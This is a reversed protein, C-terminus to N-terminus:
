QQHILRKARKVFLRAEDQLVFNKANPMFRAFIRAYQDYVGGPTFGVILRITKGQYFPAQAYAPEGMIGQHRSLPGLTGFGWVAVILLWKLNAPSVPGTM